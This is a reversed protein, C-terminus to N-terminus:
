LKLGLTCTLIKLMNGRPSLPASATLPPPKLLVPGPAPLPAGSAKCQMLVGDMHCARPLSLALTRNIPLLPVNATLVLCTCAVSNSTLKKLINCCTATPSTGNRSSGTIYNMCPTYSSLMSATCPSNIQGNVSVLLLPSLTAIFLFVRFEKM